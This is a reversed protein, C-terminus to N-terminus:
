HHDVQRQRMFYDFQARNRTKQAFSLGLQILEPSSYRDINQRLLMLARDTQGISDLALYYLYAFEANDPQLENAKEFATVAAEREGARILFMGYAYHLAGSNPTAVLGLAYVEAELEPQNTARYVDALNIYSAEFYPEVEIARRLNVIADDYNSLQLDVLSQNVNGAARWSAINNM